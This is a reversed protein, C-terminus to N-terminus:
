RRELRIVVDVGALDYGTPADPVTSFVVEDLPIDILRAEDEIFFHDNGETPYDYTFLNLIKM